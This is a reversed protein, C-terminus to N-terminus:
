NTTAHTFATEAFGILSNKTDFVTYFPQLFVYGNMFNFQELSIELCGNAALDSNTISKYTQYANTPIYLFTCGCHVIGTIRHTAFKGTHLAPSTAGFTLVGDSNTDRSATQFSLSALPHAITHRSYMLDTVTPITREPLDTLSGRTLVSPGIGLVGDSPMGPSESAIGIPMRMITLANPGPLTLTDTWLTGIFSPLYECSRVRMPQGTNFSTDSQVYTTGAGPCTIANCTTPPYGIDVSVTYGFNIDTLLFNALRDHTIYDGFAAVRAEDHQILNTNDFFKLRRTMPLTILSNLVEVPSGMIPLTLLILLFAASFM